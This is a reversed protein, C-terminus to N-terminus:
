RQQPTEEGEARNWRPEEEGQNEQQQVEPQEQQLQARTRSIPVKVSLFDHAATVSNPSLIPQGAKEAIKVIRQMIAKLEPSESSSYRGSFHTLILQKAGITLANRSALPLSSSPFPSGIQAAFKGAMDPTSHGRERTLREFQAYSVQEERVLVSSSPLTV